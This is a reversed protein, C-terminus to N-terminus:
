SVGEAMDRSTGHGSRRKPLADRVTWGARAGRPGASSAARQNTLAERAIYGTSGGPRIQDEQGFVVGQGQARNNAHIARQNFRRALLTERLPGAGILYSSPLM